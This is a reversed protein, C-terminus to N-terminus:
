VVRQGLFNRLFFLGISSMVEKWNQETERLINKWFHLFYFFSTPGHNWGMQFINSLNSWKRLYPHFYFFIQTAVMWIEM